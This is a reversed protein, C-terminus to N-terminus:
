KIGQYLDLRTTRYYAGVGANITADYVIQNVKDVEVIRPTLPSVWMYAILRSSAKPLDQTYGTLKTFVKKDNDFQWAIQVTKNLEDIKYEVARSYSNEPSGPNDYYGRYAGNDFVLINGNPLVQTAHQGYPWFDTALTNVVM